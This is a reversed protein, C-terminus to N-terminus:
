GCCGDGPHAATKKHYASATHVSPHVVPICQLPFLQNQAFGSLDFVHKDGAEDFLSKWTCSAFFPTFCELRLVPTKM